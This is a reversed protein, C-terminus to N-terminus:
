NAWALQTCEDHIIRLGAMAFAAGALYIGSDVVREASWIDCAVSLADVEAEFPQALHRTIGQALMGATWEELGEPMGIPFAQRFLLAAGLDTIRRRLAYAEVSAFTAIYHMTNLGLAFAREFRWRDSCLVGMCNIFAPEAGRFRNGGNLYQRLRNSAHDPNVLLVDRTTAVREPDLHFYQLLPENFASANRM